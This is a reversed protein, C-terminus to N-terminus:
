DRIKAWSMGSLLVTWFPVYGFALEYYFEYIDTSFSASTNKYILLLVFNVVAMFLSVACIAVASTKEQDSLDRYSSPAADYDTYSVGRDEKAKSRAWLYLMKTVFIIFVALM